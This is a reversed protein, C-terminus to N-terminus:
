CSPFPASIIWTTVQTLTLAGSFKMVNVIKWRMVLWQCGLGAWPCGYWGCRATSRLLDALRVLFLPAVDSNNRTTNHLEPLSGGFWIRSVRYMDSSSFGYGYKWNSGLSSTLTSNPIWASGPWGPPSHSIKGLASVLDRLSVNSSMAFALCRNNECPKAERSNNRFTTYHLFCNRGWTALHSKNQQTPRPGFSYCLGCTACLTYLSWEDPNLICNEDARHCYYKMITPMREYNIMIQHNDRRAFFLCGVVFQVKQFHVESVDGNSNPQPM